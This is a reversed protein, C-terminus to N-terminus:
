RGSSFGRYLCGLLISRCRKNPLNWPSFLLRLLQRTSWRLAIPMAQTQIKPEEQLGDEKSGTVEILCEALSQNRLVMTTTNNREFGIREYFRQQHTTMLYIREVRNMHPHAILTEVLRRGLGAGQYDPDIMVDWITARFVGDSTARAFGVLQQADWAIAIPHSHAIAREMDKATRGRGWFATRRFLDCLQVLQSSDLAKAYRFQIHRGDM